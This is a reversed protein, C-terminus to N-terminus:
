SEKKKPRLFYTFFLKFERHDVPLSCNQTAARCVPVSTSYATVSCYEVFSLSRTSWEKLDWFNLLKGLVARVSSATFYSFQFYMACVSLNFRVSSADCWLFRSASGMVSCGLISTGVRRQHCIRKEADQSQGSLGSGLLQAKAGPERGM